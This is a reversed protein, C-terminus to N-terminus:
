AFMAYDTYCSAVPQMTRSDFGPPPSSKRVTWVPGPAWEAEQVIPVPARERPYLPWPTAIVVWGWRAGLDFHVAIGRSGMQVKM